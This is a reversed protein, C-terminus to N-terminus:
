FTFQGKQLNLVEQGYHVKTTVIFSLRLIEIYVFKGSSKGTKRNEESRLSITNSNKPIKVKRSSEFKSFSFANSSVTNLGNSIGSRSKPTDLRHEKMTSLAVKQNSRSTRKFNGSINTSKTEKLKMSPCENLAPTAQNCVRKLLLESAPSPTGRVSCLRKRFSQENITGLTGSATNTSKKMCNSASLLHLDTKSKKSPSSFILKVMAKSTKLSNKGDNTNDTVPKDCRPAVNCSQKLPPVLTANSLRNQYLVSSDYFIKPLSEISSITMTSDISCSSADCDIESVLNGEHQRADACPSCEVLDEKSYCSFAGNIENHLIEPVTVTLKPLSEQLINMDYCMQVERVSQGDQHPLPEPSVFLSQHEPPTILSRDTDKSVTDDGIRAHGDNALDVVQISKDRNLESPSFSQLNKNQFRSEFEIEEQKSVSELAIESFDYEFLKREQKYSPIYIVDRRKVNGEQIIEESGHFDLNFVECKSTM